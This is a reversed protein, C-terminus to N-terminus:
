WRGKSGRETGPADRTTSAPSPDDPLGITLTGGDDAAVPGVPKASEVQEGPPKGTKFIMYDLGVIMGGLSTGISQKKKAM